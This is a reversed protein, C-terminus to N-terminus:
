SCILELYRVSRVTIQNHEASGVCFPPFSWRLRLRLPLTGPDSGGSLRSMRRGSWKTDLQFCQGIEMIKMCRTLSRWLGREVKLGLFSELFAPNVVEELTRLFTEAGSPKEVVQQLIEGDSQVLRAESDLLEARSYTEKLSFTLPKKRAVKALSSCLYARTVHPPTGTQRRPRLAAHPTSASAEADNETLDRALVAELSHENHLLSASFSMRVMASFLRRLPRRILAACQAGRSRAFRRSGCSRTPLIPLHHPSHNRVLTNRLFRCNNNQIDVVSIMPESM